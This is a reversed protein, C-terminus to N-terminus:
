FEGRLFKKRKEEEMREISYRLTTRSLQHYNKILFDEVKKQAIKGRKNEKITKKKSFEGLKWAERLMWGVAKHMLDENDGLLKKAIRLTQQLNNRKIFGWTALISVRRHWHVKSSSLKDLIKIEEKHSALHEGLIHPTAIDVLNWNNINKLNKLFFKYIRDREKESTKKKRYRNVLIILACSREENFKSSIVKQLEIYNLDAFKKAIERTYSGSVGMFSDYQGYEGKGTKFFRKTSKKRKVSACKKLERNVSKYNM